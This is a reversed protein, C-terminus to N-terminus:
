YPSPGATILCLFSPNGLHPDVSGGGTPPPSNSLSPSLSLSLFLYFSISLTFSLSSFPPPYLYFSIKKFPPLTAYNNLGRWPSMKSCKATKQQKCNLNLPQPKRIRGFRWGLSVRFQLCFTLWLFVVFYRISAIPFRYNWTRLHLM